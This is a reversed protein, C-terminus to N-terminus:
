SRVNRMNATMEKDARSPKTRALQLYQSLFIEYWPFEKFDAEFERCTDLLIDDLQTLVGHDLTPFLHHNVHHGFTALALFHSDKEGARSCTAAMQYIGFDLSKLEDGDHFVQVHHHGANLGSMGYFFSGMMQIFFWIKFVTWYNSSGAILMLTPLILVILDDLRFKQNHRLIDSYRSPFPVNLM